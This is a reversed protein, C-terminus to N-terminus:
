LSRGADGATVLRNFDVSTTEVMRSLDYGAQELRGGPSLDSPWFPQRCAASVAVPLALSIARENREGTPMAGPCRRHDDGAQRQATLVDQLTVTPGLPLSRLGQQLALVPKGGVAKVTLRDPHFSSHAKGTAPDVRLAPLVLHANVSTGAAIQTFIPSASVAHHLVAPSLPGGYHRALVFPAAAAVEAVMAALVEYAESFYSSAGRYTSRRRGADIRGESARDDERHTAMLQDLRDLKPRFESDNRWRLLAGDINDDMAQALGYHLQRYPTLGAINVPRYARSPGRQVYIMALGLSLEAGIADIEPQNRRRRDLDPEDGHM